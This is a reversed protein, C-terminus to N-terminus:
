PRMGPDRAYIRVDDRDYIKTMYREFKREDLPKYSDRELPGVYVYAVDYAQLILQVTEWDPAEYVLQVDARRSGQPQATGRWQVEHFDWGLVTPLGTNTAIRGYQSYSGGVAELLVGAPLQGNIWQVAAYDAPSLRSLYEAGDLTRGSAPRFGETKTWISLAPYVLGLLLPLGLLLRPTQRLSGREPWLEILAYAGAIGWLLWAAFYFKFVTNMRTGFLDRLYFFEPTIVLAAGVAILIVIFPWPEGSAARPPAPADPSSMVRRLVVVGLALTFGLLLATGSHAVRRAAAAQILALTGQSLPLDSIGFDRLMSEGLLPNSFFAVYLFAALASSLLLLSLPTGLGLRILLARESRGWAMRARRILWVAIPVFAVGFMVLFHQLKSPFVLNPLIGGAQSSFSPYWPLYLLVAGSAVALATSALRATVRGLPEGRGLWALVATLLGLYIPSDWTNLFALAGFLWAAFALEVRSLASPFYGTLVLALNALLALAAAALGLWLATQALVSGIGPQEAGGTVSRVLM